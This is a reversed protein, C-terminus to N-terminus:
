LMFLRLIFRICLLLCFYLLYDEHCLCFSMQDSRNKQKNVFNKKWLRLGWRWKTYLNAAANVFAHNLGNLISAIHAKKTNFSNDELLNKKKKKDIFDKSINEYWLLMGAVRWQMEYSSVILWHLVVCSGTYDLICSFVCVYM